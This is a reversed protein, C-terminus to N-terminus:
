QPSRIAVCEPDLIVRGKFREHFTLLDVDNYQADKESTPTVAEEAVKSTTSSKSDHDASGTMTRTLTCTQPSQLLLVSSSFATSARRLAV